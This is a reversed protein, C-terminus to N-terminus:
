LSFVKRKNVSRPSYMRWVPGWDVVVVRGYESGEGRVTSRAQKERAQAVSVRDVPTSSERNM